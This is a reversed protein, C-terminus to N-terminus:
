EMRRRKELVASFSMTLMMTSSALAFLSPPHALIDRWL